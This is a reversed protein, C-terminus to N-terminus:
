ALSWFDGSLGVSRFVENAEEVSRKRWAPKDRGEFWARALEWQQTTTMRAGAPHEDDALWRVLHEESRFLLM